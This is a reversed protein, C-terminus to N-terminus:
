PQPMTSPLCLLHTRTRFFMRGGAIAPTADTDAGLQGEGVKQFKDGTAIVAVQGSRGTIFLRDGAMVPSSYAKDTFVRESYVEAGDEAKVCTLVGGDSLMYLRNGAGVPSPVYPLGKRNQWLIDPKPDTMRVAVSNRGGGGQGTSMFCIDGALAPSAVPRDSPTPSQVEWLLKGDAANLCTLAAPNGTLIVAEAGSKQKIVVPTAFPTRVSQRPHKWAISGDSPNLGAIFSDSSGNDKSMVLVGGALVPSTGSGHEEAYTGLGTQWLPKGDHTLARVKMTGSSTWALYLRDADVCPTSSAFSNFQHKGEAGFADSARWLEQGSGADFAMVLRQGAESTESTLFLRDGWLVPSSIGPGPLATQWSFDEATFSDPFGTAKSIGSGEPGRFRTWEQASAVGHLVVFTLLLALKM